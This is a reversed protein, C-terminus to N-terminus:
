LNAPRYSEFLKIRETVQELHDLDDNNKEHMSKLLDEWDKALSLPTEGANNPYNILSWAQEPSPARRLLENIASPRFKHHLVTDNFIDKTTILDWAKDGVVLFIIKVCDLNSVHYTMFHHLVTQDSSDKIESLSKGSYSLCTKLVTVIATHNTGEKLHDKIFTLLSDPTSLWAGYKKYCDSRLKETIRCANTMITKTVDDPLYLEPNNRTVESLLQYIQFDSARSDELMITETETLLPQIKQCSKRWDMSDVQYVMAIVIVLFVVFLDKLFTM